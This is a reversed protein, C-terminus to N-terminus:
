INKRIEITSKLLSFKVEPYEKELKDLLGSVYSKKEDKKFKFKKSKAYLIVEDHLVPLLLKVYTKKGLKYHGLYPADKNQFVAHLFYEDEKDANWPIIIKDYDGNLEEGLNYSIKKVTIKVPLNKIIDKLLYESAKSEASSDDIVLIRDNKKILRNLRLEKRVRKQIIKIFCSECAELNQVKLESPKGCKVCRM